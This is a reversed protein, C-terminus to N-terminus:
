KRATTLHGCQGPSGGGGCTDPWVPAASSSTAAATGPPAAARGLAACTTARMSRAPRAAAAAPRTPRAPPCQLPRRRATAPRGAHHRARRLHDAHVDAGSAPAGGGGCTQNLPCTGCDVGTVVAATARPGCSIHQSACSIPSCAGADPAGGPQSARWRRAPRTAASSSAAAATAPRAASSARRRAPRLTGARRRVASAPCGGGCTTGNPCNGCQLLDGCGDGRPACSRHGAVRLHGAHVAHAGGCVTGPMRRRRLDPAGHVAGCDGLQGGCGDGAPGLRLGQSMCTVSAHSTPPPPPTQPTICSALDAYDLLHEQPTLATGPAPGRELYDGGGGNTVHFDSFLVRGCQQAAPAGVQTNFTYHLPVKTGGNNWYLWLQAEAANVADFDHRTQNLPGVQGYVTSAGVVQSWQFAQGRPNTFDIFGTLPDPPNAQAVDWTATGRLARLQAHALHLQLADRVRARRANAYTQLMAETGTAGASVDNPPVAPTGDCSLIVMDYANLTAQNTFLQTVSPANGATSSAGNSVYFQIRGTGGNATPNTFEADDIGIQRFM